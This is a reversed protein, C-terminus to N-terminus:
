TRRRAPVDHKAQSRGNSASAVSGNGLACARHTIHTLQMEHVDIGYLAELDEPPPKFFTWQDGEFNVIAAFAMCSEAPIGHAHLLEIWIDVYCNTERFTRDPGHLPSVLYAGPDLDLLSLM